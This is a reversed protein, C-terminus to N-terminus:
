PYKNLANLLILGESHEHKFYPESNTNTISKKDINTPITHHHTNQPPATTSTKHNNLPTQVEKKICPQFGGDASLQKEALGRFIIAM